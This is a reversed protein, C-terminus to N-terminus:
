IGYITGTGSIRGTGVIRQLPPTFVTIQAITRSSFNTVYLYSNYIVMAWPNVVGQVSTAWSYNTTTYTLNILAILGNDIDAVYLKNFYAIMGGGHYGFGTLWPNTVVGATSIRAITGTGFSVYFNNNYYTM